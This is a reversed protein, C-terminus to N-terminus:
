LNTDLLDNPWDSSMEDFLNTDKFAKLEFHEHMPTHNVSWFYLGSSNPSLILM